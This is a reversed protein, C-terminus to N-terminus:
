GKAGKRKSAYGCMIMRCDFCNKHTELPSMPKGCRECEHRAARRRRIERESVRNQEVCEACLKVGEKPRRKGCVPCLGTSVLRHYRSKLYERKKEPAKYEYDPKM